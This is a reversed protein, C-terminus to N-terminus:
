QPKHLSLYIHLHPTGEEGVESDILLEKAVSEPIALVSQREADTFNNLVGTWRRAKQRSM